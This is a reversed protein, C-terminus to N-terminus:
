RHIPSVVFGFTKEPKMAKLRFYIALNSKQSLTIGVYAKEFATAFYRHVQESCAAPIQPV